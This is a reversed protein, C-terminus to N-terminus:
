KGMNMDNGKMIMIIIMVVPLVCPCDHTHLQKVNFFFCKSKCKELETCGRDKIFSWDGFLHILYFFVFM